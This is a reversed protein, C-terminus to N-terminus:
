PSGNCTVWSVLCKRVLSLGSGAWVRVGSRLFDPVAAVFTWLDHLAAGWASGCAGQGAEDFVAGDCLAVRGHVRGALTWM